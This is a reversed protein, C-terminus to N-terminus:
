SGLTQEAETIRAEVKGCKGDRGQCGPGAKACDEGECVVSM